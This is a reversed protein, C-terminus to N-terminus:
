HAGPAGGTERDLEEFAKDAREIVAKRVAESLEGMRQVTGKFGDVDLRCLAYVTGGRSVWSDTLETGSLTLDTIQRSVDTIHQDDSAEIAFGPGGTSTSQYDKLMARVQTQLTRAIGTRARALAAERALGADRTGTVSGVGYVFRPKASDKHLCAGGQSVWCPAGALEAAAVGSLTRPPQHTCGAVAVLWGALGVARFVITSRSPSM